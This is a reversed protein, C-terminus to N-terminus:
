QAYFLTRSFLSDIVGQTLLIHGECRFLPHPLMKYIVQYLMEVIRGAQYAYLHTEPKVRHEAPGIYQYMVAGAFRHHYNFALSRLHLDGLLYKVLDYVIVEAIPDSVQNNCIANGVKGPLYVSHCVTKIQEIM